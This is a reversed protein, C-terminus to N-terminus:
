LTRLTSGEVEEMVIADSEPWHDLIRISGFRPDREALFHRHIQELALFEMRPKLRADPLPAVRPIDHAIEGLPSAATPVKLVLRKRLEGDSVECRLLISQPRRSIELLRVEPDVLEPYYTAARDRVRAVWEQPDTATTLRPAVLQASAM